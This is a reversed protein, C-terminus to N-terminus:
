WDETTNGVSFTKRIKLYCKGTNLICKKFYIYIHLYTCIYMFACIATTIVISTHTSIYINLDFSLNFVFLFVSLQSVSFFHCVFLCFYLCVFLCVSLCVFLCVSLCVLLCVTGQCSLSSSSSISGKRLKM